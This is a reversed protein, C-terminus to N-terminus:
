EPELVGYSSILSSHGVSTQGVRKAGTQEIVASGITNNVADRHGDGILEGYRRHLDTDEEIAL